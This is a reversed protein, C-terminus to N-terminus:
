KSTTQLKSVIIKTTEVYGHQVMKKRAQQSSLLQRSSINAKPIRVEILPCNMQETYVAARGTVNVAIIRADPFTKCALQVPVAAIRDIGPDIPKAASIRELDGFILGNSTSGGIANVLDGRVVPEMKIGTGVVSAYTTAFPTSLEEINVVGVESRIAQVFKAHDAKTVNSGTFFQQIEMGLKEFFNLHATKAWIRELRPALAQNPQECYLGGVLAGMSTGAVCDISVGAEKIARLAGVHAIGDFAGVSFVVCTRKFAPPKDQRGCCSLVSLLVPIWVMASIQKCKM